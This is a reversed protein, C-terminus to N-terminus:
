MELGWAQGGSNTLSQNAPMNTNLSTNMVEDLITKALEIKVFSWLLDNTNKIQKWFYDFGDVGTTNTNDVEEPCGGLKVNLGFTAYFSRVANVFMVASKPALSNSGRLDPAIM